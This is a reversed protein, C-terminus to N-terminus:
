VESTVTCSEGYFQSNVDSAFKVAEAKRWFYTFEVESTRVFWRGYSSTSPKVEVKDYPEYTFEKIVDAQPTTFIPASRTKILTGTSDRFEM